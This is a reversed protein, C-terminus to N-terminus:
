GTSNNKGNPNLKKIKLKLFILNLINEFNTIKIEKKKTLKLKLKDVELTLFYNSKLWCNNLDFSLEFSVLSLLLYFQFFSIIMAGGKRAKKRMSQQNIIKM